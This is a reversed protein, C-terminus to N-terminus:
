TTGPDPAGAAGPHRSPSRPFDSTAGARALAAAVNDAEREHATDMPSRGERDPLDLVAGRGVLPAIVEARDFWAAAHLPAIGFRPDLENVDANDLALTIGGLDGLAAARVLPTALDVWGDPVPGRWGHEPREGLERYASEPVSEASIRLDSFTLSVAGTPGVLLRLVWRDQDKADLGAHEIEGREVRVDGALLDLDEFRLGGQVGIQVGTLVLEIRAHNWRRFLGNSSEIVEDNKTIVTLRLTCPSDPDTGPLREWSAVRADRWIVAALLAITPPAETLMRRLHEDYGDVDEFSAYGVAPWDLRTWHV